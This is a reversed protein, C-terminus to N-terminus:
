RNVHCMEAPSCGKMGVRHEAHHLDEDARRDSAKVGQAIGGASRSAREPLLVLSGLVESGEAWDGCCAHRGPHAPRIHHHEVALGNCRSTLIQCAWAVAALPLFPLAILAPPSFESSCAGVSRGAGSGMRPLRPLVRAAEDTQHAERGLPGPQGDDTRTSTTAISGNGRATM